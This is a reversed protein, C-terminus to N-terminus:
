DSQRINHCAPCTRPKRPLIKCAADTFTILLILYLIVYHALLTCHLDLFSPACCSFRVWSEDTKCGDGIVNAAVKSEVAATDGHARERMKLLVLASCFRVRAISCVMVSVCSFTQHM